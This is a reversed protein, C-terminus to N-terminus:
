TKLLDPDTDLSYIINLNKYYYLQQSTGKATFVTYYKGITPADTVHVVRGGNEKWIPVNIYVGDFDGGPANFNLIAFYAGIPDVGDIRTFTTPYQRNPGLASIDSIIQQQKPNVTPQQNVVVPNHNVAMVVPIPQPTPEMSKSYSVLAGWGFSFAIVFPAAIILLVLIDVWCSEIFEVLESLM